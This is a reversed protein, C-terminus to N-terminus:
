RKRFRETKENYSNDSPTCTREATVHYFYKTGLATESYSETPSTFVDAGAFDYPDTSRYIIYQDVPIPYTWNLEIENTGVNYQITLDDITPLGNWTIADPGWVNNGEDLETIYGDTDVQVYSSWTEAIDWTIDFDVIVFDGTPIGTDVFVAQDGIQMPAPPSGLDYYIDVIFGTGGPIDVNGNNYITIEVNIMDCVYPNTDTWVVNSIELDPGYGDWDILDFSDNDYMPGAFDGTANTFTLNGQNLTKSVNYTGSWTNTPLTVNDITLTQNNDITLLTGGTIGNRFICNDFSHSADIIAGNKVNIGNASMREFIAYDASITGGSEVNFDYYDYVSFRTVKAENGASGEVQLIGGSNVILDGYDGVKLIADDDVLITGGDNIIIDGYNGASHGNLNLTGEEILMTGNSQTLLNSNLIVTQSRTQDDVIKMPAEEGGPITSTKERTATKDVVINTLYSSGLYEFTQDATGKFTVTSGSGYWNATSAVFVDGYLFHNLGGVYDDWIGNSITLDGLVHINDAARFYDSSKDVILNYFNENACNTDMIQEASGNFTVTSTGPNFGKWSDYITNNNTWDGGVYINLGTDGLANLGANLAIVFNNDINLTSGANMEITADTINLNNTVNITVGDMIELAYYQPNTKDLTLNYFTENTTIDAENSGNFTVTGTGETFGATGVNNTWNGGIEIANVDPDLVGSNIELDHIISFSSNATVTAGTKDINLDYFATPGIISSASSGDFTVSGGTPSFINNADTFSGELFIEGGSVNETSGTQFQIHQESNLESGSNMTLSGASHFYPGNGTINVTGGSDIILEDYVDFYLTNMTYSNIDLYGYLHTHYTVELDYSCNYLAADAGTETRFYYFYSDPDDIEINNNVVHGDVYIHTTGSTGNFQSGNYLHISEVYYDGGTQNFTSGSYHSAQGHRGVYTGLHITGSLDVTSGSYLLFDDGIELTGDVILEGYNLVDDGVNVTNGNLNFTGADILLDGNIDLESAATVTNSRTLEVVSGDRNYSIEKENKSEKTIEDTASKNILVDYFNSGVGMSLNADTSGYLEITGGAPNFDTRNCTFWGSTKISGDTIDETLMYSNFITIGWGDFDFVGTGEILLELDASTCWYSEDAGGIINISANDKVWIVSSFLDVYQGADQHLTIEGGPHAYLDDYIGDDELDFATFTSYTVSIGGSTYDYINCSVDTGSNPRFGGVSANELINFHENTQIFQVSATSKNLIVRGTGETFGATGVTNTWNGGVTVTYNAPNFNGQEITLDGAVTIGQNVLTASTSASFVVNNFIGSGSGYNNINQVAGDFIVSGTNSLQTFDFTGYYNFNGRMIIDHSSMSELISSSTTYVLGNIVIDETCLNSFIAKAGGSKYIRLNYFNCNDSYCRIWSSSSGEFDVFGSTLNANAGSNFNWDGYINILAGSATFNATSGSNWAMNGYCTIDADDHIMGLTGDISIDGNTVLEAAVINLTGGTQITLDNCEENYGGDIKPPQYGVSTIIVDEGATPIHGLSWNNANHWWYNFNGTWNNTTTREMGSIILAYDQGSGINGKHSIQITYYGATPNDIFVQEVNDVDNDGANTAAWSPNARNLKWPYYTTSSSIKIVRLDLDNVLMKNAPNLAAAVPTGSIDTWCITVNIDETGDAYYYYEETEGNSLNNECILDGQTDDLTILETATESNMLGWGFMYDPGDNPGAEDATNIVLGKLTAALMYSSHLNHYHEQLLACSGAAAPSSMSTGGVWRYDNTADDDTSYLWHGNTVIDPKIRGDDCPGWSSFGSAVVDGPATWGGPVEECSGVTMINKSVSMQPLCDYGDAGGDPDRYATSWVWSSGDWYYHGDSHDDDRDNGAAKFILYEPADHAIQDWDQATDDYFGFLYDEIPSISTNGFWYWYGNSSNYTWGRNWGYSHNSIILDDIAAANAMEAEADEWDYSDLDAEFAMGHAANVQGEAILTGGVHTSHWHTAVADRHTVRFGGMGDDFEQHNILVTGADWEGILFGDASLNLGTGGGPWLEDTEITRASNLNCTTYYQPIGNKGIRMLEMFLEGEREITIPLDKEKAIRLAEEKQRTYKEHLERSLQLLKQDNNKQASIISTIFFMLILLFSFKIKM